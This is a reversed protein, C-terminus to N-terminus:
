HRDIGKVTPAHQMLNVRKQYERYYAYGVTEKSAAHARM